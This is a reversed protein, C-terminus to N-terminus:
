SLATEAFPSEFDGNGVPIARIRRGFVKVYLAVPVAARRRTPLPSYGAVAAM